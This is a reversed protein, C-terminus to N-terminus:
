ISAVRFSESLLDQKNSSPGVQVLYEIEEVRWGASDPDYFALDAAPVELTVTKTEGPKLAVRAFAKLEKIPRDVKSGNYGVYLQVIEEGAVDGANRVDVRAVLKGSRGITKQALRLNSYKYATYSIGFGFPFAPELGHKDFYRYGHYYGYEVKRAKNDFPYLQENSKPIVIPLKGSPNVDGFIVDAIANGAEMGGYWALLIAPAQDKWAEMTVAGGAEIVVVTKPNASAIERILAEHKDSLNLNLRDFGENEDLHSLGVVVVAADAHEAKDRASILDVGDDFIIAINKGAARRIGQLPTVTYSPEFATSGTAGLNVKDALEGFVALTKIEGRKFPLTKNENKLLVAAKQACERSIAAHEPGGLKSRDYDTSGELHIFRLHQGIQRSVAENITDIKVRGTQVASKLKWDYFRRRDMEVDCGANASAATSKLSGFDSLVFGKFGWENKLIGSLLHSNQACPEGNLTNYANMISATGADVCAKFHPLYIERLTREDMRVDVYHRSKDISNGAFHKTCAMMHNQVGRVVAAGMMGLHYPDEGFTEQSRGWSPHRLLNICVGGFFNAGGSRGEYGIVNGVREELAPDWTAGRAMAAPFCTAGKFRIGRSGDVFRIGPIGLRECGPTNNTRFPSDKVQTFPGLVGAMMAIKEDLTMQGVLDKVKQAIASESLRAGASWVRRPFAMISSAVASVKLFLRRDM